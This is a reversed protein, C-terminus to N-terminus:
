DWLEFSSPLPALKYVAGLVLQKASFKPMNDNINLYVVGTCCPVEAQPQMSM